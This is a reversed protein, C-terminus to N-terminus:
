GQSKRAVTRSSPNASLAFDSQAAVVLSVSTTHTLNGSTATITLPYAGLPTSASTSVTMTSTGSGTISAPNFSASAGQPLGSVSFSVSGNFGGSAATNMTYNASGGPSTNNSLPTASLSF